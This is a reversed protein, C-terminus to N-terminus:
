LNGKYHTRVWKRAEAISMMGPHQLSMRGDEDHVIYPDEEHEEQDYAFPDFQKHHLKAKWIATSEARDQSQDGLNRSITAIRKGKDCVYLKTRQNMPLHTQASDAMFTLM